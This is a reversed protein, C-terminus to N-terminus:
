RHGVGPRRRRRSTTIGTRFVSGTGVPLGGYGHSLESLVVLSQGDGLDSCPWRGQLSQVIGDKGLGVRITDLEDTGLARNYIRVDELLGTWRNNVGPEQSGISAVGAPTNSSTGATMTSFVGNVDAAVSASRFYIFGSKTSFFVVGAVFFPESPTVINAISAFASSTDGDQGTARLSVSFDSGINIKARTAGAGNFFGVISKNATASDLRGWAMLTCADVNQGWPRGAGINVSGSGSLSLAM